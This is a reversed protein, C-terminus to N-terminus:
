NRFNNSFTRSSNNYEKRKFCYLSVLLEPDNLDTDNADTDAEPITANLLEDIDGIDFPQSNDLTQNKPKRGFMSSIFFPTPDHFLFHLQPLRVIFNPTRTVNDVVHNSLAVLSIYLSIVTFSRKEKHM